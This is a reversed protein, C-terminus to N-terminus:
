RDTSVASAKSSLPLTQFHGHMLLVFCCTDSQGQLVCTVHPFVAGRPAMRPRHGRSLALWVGHLRSTLSVSPCPLCPCPFISIVYGSGWARSPCLAPKSFRSSFLTLILAVLSVQAGPPQPSLPQLSLPQLSLPQPSLPQPFFSRPSLPLPQLTELLSSFCILGATRVDAM